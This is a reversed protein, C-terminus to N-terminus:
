IPRVRRRAVVTFRWGLLVLACALGAFLGWLLGEIGAGGKLGVLYATPVAVGWFSVAYFLAPLVVDGTGRLAGLIVAQAGDVVVVFAVVALAPVAVQLVAAETSYLGAIESNLLRITTGAVTMVLAVLGVGTWGAMAMAERDARGVAKAVRVSTATSLGIALMFVFTVVNFAIQYGALQIEGLRGAFTTVTSFCATELGAALALPAGIRLLKRVLPLRKSPGTRVGYGEGDPMVLVYGVLTALMAWYTLATALAAGMAGLEPMGLNGYILMWNLTANLLNASLAVAMGAKPRGIGELFFTTAIYMLIAPLGAGFMRLTRGGGRALEPSQGFALLIPEGWQMLLGALLGLTAAIRLSTSWVPGCDRTRGAGDSQATLVITGVLLGIGLVMLTIHPALSIAYHALQEAGARGAMVSDVSIMIILGARAAMVPLALRTHRVIHQSLPLRGQLAAKGAEPLTTM